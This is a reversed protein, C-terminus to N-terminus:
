FKSAISERGIDYADDLYSDLLSELAETMIIGCGIDEGIRNHYTRCLPALNHARGKAAQKAWGQVVEDATKCAGQKKAM